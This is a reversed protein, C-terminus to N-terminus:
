VKSTTKILVESNLTRHIPCKEAIEMLRQRQKDELPGDLELELEIRDLRGSETECTECDKAHIRDHKMLVRVSELPWDKRKAYMRVTMATCGGLAALLHDYPTPGADTGGFEAPEDVVMSYGNATVDTRLGNGNQAVVGGNDSSM